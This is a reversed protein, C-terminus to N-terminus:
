DSFLVDAEWDWLRAPASFYKLPDAARNGSGDLGLQKFIVEKRPTYKKHDYYGLTELQKCAELWSLDHDSFEAGDQVSLFRLNQLNSLTKANDIVCNRGEILMAELGISKMLPKLSPFPKWNTAVLKRLNPMVPFGESKAIKTNVISLVKVMPLRSPFGFNSGKYNMMEITELKEFAWNAPLNNSKIAQLQIHKLNQFNRLDLNACSETEDFVLGECCECTYLCEKTILETCISLTNLAHFHSFDLGRVDVDWSLKLYKLHGLKEWIEIPPIGSAYIEMARCKDLLSFVSQVADDDWSGAHLYVDEEGSLSNLQEENLSGDIRVNPIGFLNRLIESMM